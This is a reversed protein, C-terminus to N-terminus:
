GISCKRTGLGSTMRSRPMLEEISRAKAREIRAAEDRDRQQLNKLLADRKKRTQMFQLWFEQADAPDKARLSAWNIKQYLALRDNLM